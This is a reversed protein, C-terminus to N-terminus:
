RRLQGVAGLQDERERAGVRREALEGADAALQGVWLQEVGRELALLREARRADLAGLDAEGVKEQVLDRGCIRTHLAFVQALHAAADGGQPEPHLAQAFLGQREVEDARQVHLQQAVLHARSAGRALEPGRLVPDARGARRQGGRGVHGRRHGLQGAHEGRPLRKELLPALEGVEHLAGHHVRLELADVREHAAVPAEAPQEDRQEEDLPLAERARQEVERGVELTMAVLVVGQQLAHARVGIPHRPQGEEGRAHVLRGVARRPLRPREDPVVGEVALFDLAVRQHEGVLQEARGADRDGFGLAHQADGVRGRATRDALELGFAQEVSHLLFRQGRTYRARCTRSAM